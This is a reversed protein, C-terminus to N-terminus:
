SAPADAGPECRGFLGTMAEDDFAARQLARVLPTARSPLRPDFPAFVPFALTQAAMEAERPREVDVGRMSLCIGRPQRDFFGRLEARDGPQRARGAHAREL